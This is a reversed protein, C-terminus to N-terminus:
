RSDKVARVLEELFPEPDGFRGTKRHVVALDNELDVLFFTPTGVGGVKEHGVFEPDPFLPFTVDYKDAFFNTEYASNGAGLGVVKLRGALSSDRIMAHLRNVAPAEAQCHPCYMSFVEVLVFEAGIDSVSIVQGTDVGLYGAYAPNNVPGLELDPFTELSRAAAPLAPLLLSWVLILGAVFRFIPISTTM